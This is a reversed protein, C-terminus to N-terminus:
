AHREAQACSSPREEATEMVLSALQPSGKPFIIAEGEVKAAPAAEPKPAESCGALLRLAVALAILRM